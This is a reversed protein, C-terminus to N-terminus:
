IHSHAHGIPLRIITKMKAPATRQPDSLYIEHHKGSQVYGQAHIFELLRQVTPPEEAYPGIHMVQACLGEDFTEFRLHDLAPNSKKKRALEIAQAVHADTVFDPQVIIARWLWNRRDELSFATDSVWWLAELPMVDYNPTAGAKKLMFKLTYATSYLAEIAERWAEATNPDGTGEIALVPLVPPTVLVCTAGRPSYLTGFTKKIDLKTTSKLSDTM